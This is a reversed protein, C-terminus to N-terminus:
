AVGLSDGGTLEASKARAARASRTVSSFLNFGELPLHSRDQLPTAGRSRDRAVILEVELSPQRVVTRIFEPSQAVPLGRTLIARSTSPCVSRAKSGFSRSSRQFDTM